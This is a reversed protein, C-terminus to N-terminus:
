IEFEPIDPADIVIQNSDYRVKALLLQVENRYAKRLECFTALDIDGKKYAEIAADIKDIIDRYNSVRRRRVTM